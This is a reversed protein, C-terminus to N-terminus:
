DLFGHEGEPCRVIDAVGVPMEADIGHYAGIKVNPDSLWRVGSITFRVGDDLIAVCPCFYALDKLVKVRAL